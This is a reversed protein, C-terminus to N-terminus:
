GSQSRSLVTSPLVAEAQRGAGDLQAAEPKRQSPSVRFLIRVLRRSSSLPDHLAELRWSLHLPKKGDMILDVVNESAVGIWVSSGFEMGDTTLGEQPPGLDSTSGM